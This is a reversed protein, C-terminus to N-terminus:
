RFIYNGLVVINETFSRTYIGIPIEHIINKLSFISFTFLHTIYTYCYFRNETHSMSTKMHKM